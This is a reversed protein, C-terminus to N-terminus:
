RTPQKEAEIQYCPKDDPYRRVFPRLTVRIPHPDTNGESTWLKVLATEDHICVKQAKDWYRGMDDCNKQNSNSDTLSANSSTPDSNETKEPEKPQLVDVPHNTLIKEKEQEEVKEDNDVYKNWTNGAAPEVCQFTAMVGKMDPLVEINDALQNNLMVVTSRWLREGELLVVGKRGIEIYQNHDGQYNLNLLHPNKFVEFKLKQNIEHGHGPVKISFLPSKSDSKDCLTSIGAGLKPETKWCKNVQVTVSRWWSPISIVASLSHHSPLQRFESNDSLDQSGALRPKIVWGFRTATNPDAKNEYQWDGFGVVLPHREVLELEKEVTSLKQILAEVKNGGGLLAANVLSYLQQKQKNLLAIHQTQTQPTVAYSFTQSIDKELDNILTDEGSKKKTLVLRCKQMDCGEVSMNFYKNLQDFEKAQYSVMLLKLSDLQRNLGEDPHPSQNQAPPCNTYTYSSDIYHYDNQSAPPSKDNLNVCVYPRTLEEIVRPMKWTQEPFSKVLDSIQKPYQDVLVSVASLRDVLNMVVLMRNNSLLQPCQISPWDKRNIHDQYNDDDAKVRVDGNKFIIEKPKENKDKPLPCTYLIKSILEGLEADNKLYNHKKLEDELVRTTKIKRTKDLNRPYSGILMEVECFFKDPHDKCDSYVTPEKANCLFSRQQTDCDDPEPNLDCTIEETKFGEPKIFKPNLILKKIQLCIQGRLFAEFNGQENAPFQDEFMKEATFMKIRDDILADVMTQIEVMWDNFLNKKNEPTNNTEIDPAVTVLIIASAHTHDGPIIASDFNLRYLTNGEIDHRDDLQIRMMENRVIDRYDQMDAFTDAPTATINLPTKNLSNTESQLTPLSPLGQGAKSGDSKGLNEAVTSHKTKVSSVRAEPIVFDERTLVTLQKELWAQERFRDNVLRERTYVKPEDVIIDGETEWPFHISEKVQALFINDSIDERNLFDKVKNEAAIINADNFQNNLGLISDTEIQIESGIISSVKIFSEKKSHNFTIDAKSILIHRCIKPTNQSEKFYLLGAGFVLEYEEGFQQVKNYISFFKKYIKSQVEFTDRKIQFDNVEKKYIELDDLWQNKLYEQFKLEVEPYETLLITKGNKIISENLCPVVSEDILSDKIIWDTVSDILTVFIPPKPEKPKGIKLWYDADHNYNQFTICDFIDCKPIDALWINEPYQEASEIDRVPKSRLKSFELLYEFIQLYKQKMIEAM